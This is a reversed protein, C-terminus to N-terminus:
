LTIWIQIEGNKIESAKDGLTIHTTLRGNVVHDNEILIDKIVLHQIFTIAHNDTRFVNRGSGYHALRHFGKSEVELKSKSGKFTLALQKTTITPTLTHMEEVCNCVLTAEKTYEKQCTTPNACNDCTENCIVYTNDNFHQMILKRRCISSMCYQVVADVSRKLQEMECSDTSSTIRLLQNRDAFKFMIICRSPNGDRGARGAEQYYDELSRPITDHIVFRVDAKDIGMGFANTACMVMAKGDLWAKANNGKEFHDLKGHYYVAALGKSKFIYALEVTDKTSSCYVIGCQNPHHDKVYQVVDEKSYKKRKEMVAFSLNSRNCSAQHIDPQSLGLKEIIQQQTDCTATGTFAAIPKNFKKLEILRGYAPRFSNGWTDVCHAEDIVFRNLTQNKTMTEFCSAAQQSLAFEPTIYFFKYKPNQKTLEHFISDREQPQLNSTVYCVPIGYNRLKAVQDNLLAILPTIVVTVGDNVIGPIWYCITKGGGTPIIALTDKNQLLSNIVGRQNDKFENHRFVKRLVDLPPDECPEAM